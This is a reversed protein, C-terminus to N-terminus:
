NDSQNSRTLFVRSEAPHYFIERRSYQKTNISVPECVFMKKELGILLYNYREVFLLRKITEQINEKLVSFHMPAVKRQM